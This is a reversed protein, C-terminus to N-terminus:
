YRRGSLFLTPKVVLFTRPRDSTLRDLRPSTGRSSPSSSSSNTRVQSRRESELKKKTNARARARGCCSISSIAWTTRIRQVIRIGASPRGPSFRDSCEHIYPPWPPESDSPHKVTTEESDAPEPSLGAREGRTSANTRLYYYIGSPSLAFVRGRAHIVTLPSIGYPTTENLPPCCLRHSPARASESPRSRFWIQVTSTTATGGRHTCHCSLARVNGLKPTLGGLYIQLRQNEPHRCGSHSPSTLAFPLSGIVNILHRFRQRKVARL